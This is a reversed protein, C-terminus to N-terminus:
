KNTKEIKPPLSQSEVTRAELKFMESFAGEPHDLKVM